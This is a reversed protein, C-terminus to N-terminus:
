CASHATRGTQRWSAPAAEEDWGAATEVEQSVAAAAAAVAVASVAVVVVVRM